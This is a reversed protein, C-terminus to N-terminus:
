HQCGPYRGCGPARPIRTRSDRIRESHARRRWIVAELRQEVGPDRDGSSELQLLDQGPEHLRRAVEGTGPVARDAHEVLRSVPERLEDGGSEAVLGALGDAVERRAPPDQTNQDGVGPRKSERVEAGIRAGHAKWGVMWGHPRKEANGHDGTAAHEPVQVQGLLPGSVERLGVLPDRDHQRGLRAGGDLVRTQEGLRPVVGVRELPRPGLERRDVLQESRDQAAACAVVHELQEGVLGHPDHRRRDDPDGQGLVVAGHEAVHRGAAFTALPQATM